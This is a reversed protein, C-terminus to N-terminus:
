FILKGENMAKVTNEDLDIQFEVIATFGKFEGNVIYSNNSEINLSKIKVIKGKEGKRDFIEQFHTLDKNLNEYSDAELKLKINASMTNSHIQNEESKPERVTEDTTTFGNLFNYLYDIKSDEKITGVMKIIQFLKEQKTM